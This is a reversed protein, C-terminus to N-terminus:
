ALYIPHWFKYKTLKEKVHMYLLYIKQEWHKRLFATWKMSPSSVSRYTNTKLYCHAMIYVNMEYNQWSFWQRTQIQVTVSVLTPRLVPEGSLPKRWIKWTFASVTCKSFHGHTSSFDSCKIMKIAERTNYLWHLQYTMLYGILWYIESSALETPIAYTYFKIM